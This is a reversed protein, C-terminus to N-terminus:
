DPLAAPATESIKDLDLIAVGDVGTIINVFKSSWKIEHYKYSSRSYVTQSFTDDFGKLVVLFEADREKLQEETFGYLPSENDIPHVVTWSLAMFSIKSRELKLTEFTRSKKDAKLMSIVVQVEVEILQTSRLNAIRFMLGRGELYPAIVAAKSYLIRAQPRSFRGYFLGTALAFGLLGILSEIAAIISATAGVPSIRGYGVTTLTQASFFFADLYREFATEGLVGALHELGAMLYFMAFISNVIIYFALIVLAFRGWSMTILAHYVNYLRFVPLGKRKVNFSGDANLLRARSGLAKTGFGLDQPTNNGNGKGAM